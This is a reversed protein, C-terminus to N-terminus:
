TREGYGGSIPQSRQGSRRIRGLPTPGKRPALLAKRWFRPSRRAYTMSLTFFLRTRLCGTRRRPLRRGPASSAASHCGAPARISSACAFRMPADLRGITSTRSTRRTKPIVPQEKSPPVCSSRSVSRLSGVGAQHDSDRSTHDRPGM